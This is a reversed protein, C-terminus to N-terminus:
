LVLLVKVTLWLSNPLCRLHCLTPMTNTHTYSLARTCFFALSIFLVLLLSLTHIFELFYFKSAESAM